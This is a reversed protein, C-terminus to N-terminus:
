FGPVEHAVRLDYTGRRLVEGLRNVRVWGVAAVGPFEAAGGAEGGWVVSSPAGPEEGPTGREVVSGERTGSDERGVM